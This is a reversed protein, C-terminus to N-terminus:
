GEHFYAVSDLTSQLSDITLPKPLYGDMGADICFQDDGTMAHATLGIIPTRPEGREEEKKRWAKTAELGNMEPMNVDMLVAYYIADQAQLELAEKGTRAIDYTHGLEDLLTTAVLVNAPYDEVLLIKRSAAKKKKTAPSQAAPTDEAPADSKILPLRVHFTSGEGLTSEATISGGMMEVLHRTIALGLGTGGYQSAISNGSQKYQEFVTELKDEPIGIGTDSVRIAVVSGDAEVDASLSVTGEETFKIANGLLNTLVQRLRARDGMLWQGTLAGTNTRLEINKESARVSVVRATDDILADWEYPANELTFEGAEIKSIDLINNILDLLSNAGIRLTDILEEQKANFKGTRPLLNAITTVASLPTRIEHSMHALYQSKAQNASKAADYAKRLEVENEELLTKASQLAATREKVQTEIEENAALLKNNADQLVTPSPLKMLVPMLRWVTMATAFSVIGTAAKLLGQEGYDPHWITWIGFLHTLGCLTIFFSFLLFIGRFPMDQRKHAFYFLALPISFYSLAILLDAGINLWLIEPYWLYCHGHPMFINDSDFFRQVSDM